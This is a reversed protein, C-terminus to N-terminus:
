LRRRPANPIGSSCGGRTLQHRRGLHVRAMGLRHHIALAPTLAATIVAAAVIDAGIGRSRLEHVEPQIQDSM